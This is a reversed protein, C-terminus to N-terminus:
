CTLHFLGLVKDTDILENYTEYAQGTKQAILRIQRAQLFSKTESLVKMIGFKGTGIVVATPNFLEIAPKIDAVCLEHGVNRWWDDKVTDGFLIVDSNYRNGNIVINGFSYHEIM